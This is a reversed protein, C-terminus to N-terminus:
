APIRLVAVEQLVERDHKSVRVVQAAAEVGKALANWPVFSPFAIGMREGMAYERATLFRLSGAAVDLTMADEFWPMGAARIRVPVGVNRRPATRREISGSLNHGNASSRPAKCFHLAAFRPTRNRPANSVSAGHDLASPNSAGSLGDRSDGARVVQALMEPQFAPLSADYPFAVWVASGAAHTAACDVRLGARSVDRTECIEMQQGFPTSWRLRVPLRLLVRRHERHDM